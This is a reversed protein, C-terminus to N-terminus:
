DSKGNLQGIMYTVQIFPSEYFCYHENGFPYVSIMANDSMIHDLGRIKTMRNIFGPIYKSQNEIQHSANTGFESTLIKGANINKMFSETRGSKLSRIIPSIEEIHSRNVTSSLITM